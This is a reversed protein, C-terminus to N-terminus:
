TYRQLFERKADDSYFHDVSKNGCYYKDIIDQPIKVKERLNAYLHKYRKHRGENANELVLNDIGCFDSIVKSNEKLKEVTLVLIEYKGESILVYGRARDFPYQYVDIGTLAEMETHFWDFELGDGINCQNRLSEILRDEINSDMKDLHMRDTMLYDWGFYQVFDSIDRGIPERVMTIIKVPNLREQIFRKHERLCEPFVHLHIANIGEKELSRYVTNSGVKGPQFVLVINEGTTLNKAKRFLSYCSMDDWIRKREYYSCVNYMDRYSPKIRADNLNLNIAYWVAMHTYIGKPIIGSQIIDDYMEDMYNASSIIVIFDEIKEKLDQVSCIKTGSLVTNWKQSDKDCICAPRLGVSQELLNVLEHGEKGAGWIVLDCLFLMDMNEIMDLDRIEM